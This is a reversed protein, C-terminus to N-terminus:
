GGKLVSNITNMIRQWSLSYPIEVMKINSGSCFKRLDNDRKLQASFRKEGGFYEVPCYHQKGNYEIITDIKPLYFDVIYKRHIDKFTHHYKFEINKQSLYNLIDKERKFTKLNPNGYGRFINNPLCKWMDGTELCQWEIPTDKDIYNGIRKINRGELRNDIIENTLRPHNNVGNKKYKSMVNAPTDKWKYGNKDVWQIPINATIYDGVRTIGTDKLRVDIIENTLRRNLNNCQPCPSLKKVLRSKISSLFLNSKINCKDCLIEIPTANNVYQGVRKVSTKDLLTDIYNNDHKM